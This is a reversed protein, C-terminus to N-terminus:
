KLTVVKTAINYIFPGQLLFEIDNVEDQEYRIKLTFARVNM